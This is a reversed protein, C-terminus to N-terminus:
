LNMHIHSHIWVDKATYRCVNVMHVDELVGYSFNGLELREEGELEL